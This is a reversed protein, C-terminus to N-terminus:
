GPGCTWNKNKSEYTCSKTGGDQYFFQLSFTDADIRYYNYHRAEVEPRKDAFNLEDLREPYTATNDHHQRLKDIVDDAADINENKIKDEAPTCASLLVMAVALNLVRSKM